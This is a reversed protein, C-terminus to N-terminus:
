TPPPTEAEDVCIDAFQSDLIQGEPCHLVDCSSPTTNDCDPDQVGCGCDCRAGDAYFSDTCQWNPHVPIETAMEDLEEVLVLDRCNEPASFIAEIYRVLESNCEAVPFDVDVPQGVFVAVKEDDDRLCRGRSSGCSILTLLSQRIDLCDDNDRLLQLKDDMEQVCANEVVNLAGGTESTELNEEETSPGNVCEDLLACYSEVDDSPPECGQCGSFVLLSMLTFKVPTAIDLSM